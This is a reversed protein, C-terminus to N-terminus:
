TWTQAGPVGAHRGLCASAPPRPRGKMQLSILASRDRPGASPGVHVDVHDSPLGPLFHVARPMSSSDNLITQTYQPYRENAHTCHSAEGTWCHGAGSKGSSLQGEAPHLVRHRTRESHSICGALALTPGKRLVWQGDWPMDRKGRGCVGITITCAGFSHLLLSPCITCLSRNRAFVSLSGAFSSRQPAGHPRASGEWAPLPACGPHRESKRERPRPNASCGYGGPLGEVREGKTVPRPRPQANRALALAIALRAAPNLAARLMQFRWALPGCGQTGFFGHINVGTCM